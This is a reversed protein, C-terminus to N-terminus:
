DFNNISIEGSFVTVAPGTLSVDYYKKNDKGFDVILEEGSRTILHVPPTLKYNISGIIAAAVAGTGCALTEDEVGREYTRIFIKDSSVSIFNVNTGQPYFKKSYRIEKGLKYVPFDNLNSFNIGDSIKLNMLNDIDMVIHPSGTNIFDYKIKDSFVEIEENLKLNEPSNLNLKYKEGPMVSGSYEANNSLFKIDAKKVRESDNAYKIACRAGNGCLSGTSGDSNYYNMLFDYKGSDSITILGDAGIGYRRDCLEKINLTSLSLGQNLKNDIVVFDNGAGTMKVFKVNQM